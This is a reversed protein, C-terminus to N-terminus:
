IIFNYNISSQSYRCRQAADTSTIVFAFKWSKNSPTSSRMLSSGRGCGSSQYNILVLFEGGGAWTNTGASHLPLPIVVCSYVFSTPVSDLYANVRGPSQVRWKQKKKWKFVISWSGGGGGGRFFLWLFISLILNLPFFQTFFIFISISFFLFIKTPLLRIFIQTIIAM